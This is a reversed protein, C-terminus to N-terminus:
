GKKGAGRMKKPWSGAADDADAVEDLLGREMLWSVGGMVMERDYGHTRAYSRTLERVNLVSCEPHHNMWRMVLRAASSPALGSSECCRASLVRRLHTKFYEVLRWAGRATEGTAKPSCYGDVDAPALDPDAVSKLV